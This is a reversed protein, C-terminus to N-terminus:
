PFRLEQIRLELSNAGRFTNRFPHYLVSVGSAGRLAELQHGLGYGICRFVTDGQRLHCALHRGTAGVVRPEGACRVGHSVFVPSPNEQGFPALMGIEDILPLSLESLEVEIDVDIVAGANEGLEEYVNGAVTELEARFAAVSTRRIELGAANAHGGFRELHHGCQRILDLLHIGKVSRASGRGSDGNMGILIAPRLYTETIRSAVIGLVGAHWDDGDLVLAAPPVGGPSLEDVRAKAQGLIVTETEKRQRNTTELRRAIDLAEDYDTASLLQVALGAHGMRGAANLRPGIRFGVTEECIDRSGNCALDILAMLGPRRTARLARLGFSALVRNEGLLPVSDCITALAVLALSEVLYERFEPTVRSGPSLRNAVAWATKYAVAAGCLNRAGCDPASLKPNVVATARPLTPGPEHHDTVVVDIGRSTLVEVEEHSSIGNDVSIVLDVERQEVDLFTSSIGYGESLRNPIYYEPELGALTLFEMMLSTATVGDVDYDGYVLVRERDRIARAIRDAGQDMHHVDLPDGLHTLAPRLFRDCDDRDTLSRNLLLQATIEQIGMRSSLRRAETRTRPLM